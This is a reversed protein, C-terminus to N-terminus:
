VARRSEGISRLYSEIDKHSILRIVRLRDGFRLLREEVKPKSEVPFSWVWKLFKIDVREDCGPAMDPRTGRKYTWWRKLVRLTCTTRPLDLFIVTDACAMRIEMTGGFNGDMIWADRKLLKDLTDRWQERSPETWGPQWYERDLHIVELGLQAGLRRAFHSKGAGSSGVILIKQM